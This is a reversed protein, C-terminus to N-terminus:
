GIARQLRVVHAYARGTRIGITRQWRAFIRGKRRKRREFLVPVVAPPVIRLRRYTGLFPHRRM